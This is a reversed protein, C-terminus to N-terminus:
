GHKGAGKAIKVWPIEAGHERGALCRPVAEWRLPLCTQRFLALSVMTFTSATPDMESAVAMFPAKINREWYGWNQGHGM